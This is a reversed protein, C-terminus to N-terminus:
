FKASVEARIIRRDGWTLSNGLSLSVGSTQYGKNFLNDAIVAFGFRDDTTKVGLRANVLWYGAGVADPLIGPLASPLFVIRSTHSVLVNGVLRLKDSVPQDLSANFSFQVKPANPMQQGNLNFDAIVASGSLSFDKFKADLYGANVAVTLPPAVRWTVGIEAGYTRASNANVVASIIQPFAATPRASVQLGRYSNYFAAATFQVKRDFLAQRYGIEFTDVTESGFTSGDQPRPFFIPAALLNIGGPKFGQAWRAYVTGDDLKYSLTASPVFKASTSIARSVVPQTFLTNNTEHIYRGSATLTLKDTFDYALQAYVSWNEVTQELTTTSLPIAPTFFFLDTKGRLQSKLYTAGGLVQLPGSFNSIARLEEYFFKKYPYTVVPIITPVDILASDAVFFTQQHRYASISTLDIAGLKLNATASFGYERTNVAAPAGEAAEFKGPTQIFGAPLNNAIGLSALLGSLAAQSYAPTTTFQGQGNNDQKDYFDAALVLSFTNSPEILLKARGAWFDQDHLPSPDVGANLADATQQPTGLLTAGPFMAATYPNKKAINTVYPDHSIREVSANLAANEGLPLNVYASGRFTNKEGYSVRGEAHFATPDPRRTIINVVGGTANRGYLGGQAGKLVEVRQVDVLDHAMTGYIRPVDDIFTAVSPDAGVFLSNGVGRIFIQTFGSGTNPLYGPTTLQLGTLDKIGANALQDGSLAQISLPVELVSQERRQATVIIDADGFTGAAETPAAAQEQAHAASSLLTAALFSAALGTRRGNM